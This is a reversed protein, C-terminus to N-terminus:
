GSTVISARAAGCCTTYNFARFIHRDARRVVDAIADAYAGCYGHHGHPHDPRKRKDVNVAVAAEAPTAAALAALASWDVDGAAAPARAVYRRLCTELDALLTETHLWCDALAAADVAAADRAFDEIIGDPCCTLCEYLRQRAGRKGVGRAHTKEAPIDAPRQRKGTVDFTCRVRADRGALRPPRVAAWGERAGAAAAVPRWGALAPAGPTRTLLYGGDAVVAALADARRRARAARRAAVAGGGRGEGAFVSARSVASGTKDKTADLTGDDRRLLRFALASDFGMSWNCYHVTAKGAAADVKVVKATYWRGYQGCFAEVLEKAAPVWDDDAVAAAVLHSPYAARAVELISRCRKGGISAPPRYYKDVHTSDGGRQKEEKTWGDAYM